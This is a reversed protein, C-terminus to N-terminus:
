LDWIGEDIAYAGSSELIIGYGIDCYSLQQLRSLGEIIDEWHGDTLEVLRFILSKLQALKIFLLGSLERFTFSVGTLKLRRLNPVKWKLFSPFIETNSLLVEGAAADENEDLLPQFDLLMEQLCSANGLFSKLIGMNSGYESHPMCLICLELVELYKSAEIFLPCGLDTPQFMLHSVADPEFTAPPVCVQQVTHLKGASKLLKIMTGLEFQGETPLALLHDNNRDWRSSGRILPQLFQPPWSRALPSGVPRTGNSRVIAHKTRTFGLPGFNIGTEVLGATSHALVRKGQEEFDPWRSQPQASGYPDVDHLAYRGVWHHKAFSNDLTVSRVPGLKTLGDVVHRHWPIEERWLNGHHLMHSQYALKCYQKYGDRFASQSQCLRLGLKTNAIGPEGWQAEAALMLNSIDDYAANSVNCSTMYSSKLFFDHRLLEYYTEEQLGFHFRATDYFVHKVGKSLSPHNTVKTFVEIDPKYPSIYVTDILVLAGISGYTKSVLRLQKRDRQPLHRFILLIIENPLTIM